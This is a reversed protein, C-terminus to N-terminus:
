PRHNARVRLAREIPFVAIEAESVHGERLANVMTQVVEDADADDTIVEVKVEAVDELYQIGRYYKVKEKERGAGKVECVTMRRVSREELAEKVKDLMYPRILAEIKKV